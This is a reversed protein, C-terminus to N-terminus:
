DGHFAEMWQAQIAAGLSLVPDQLLQIFKVGPNDALGDASTGIHPGLAPLSYLHEYAANFDAFPGIYQTEINMANHPRYIVIYM